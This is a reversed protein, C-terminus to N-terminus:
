PALRRYEVKGSGIKTTVKVGVMGCGILHAGQQECPTETAVLRAREGKPTEGHVLGAAVGREVLADRVHEAHAVNVCFVIWACREGARAILDDCTRAILDADDMAAALEAEVYEGGRIHVGALNPRELGGPTVLRSLYGDRILDVVRAEYAIETLVNDPGCVPVARGQLRYPTATLGVVRLHPNLARADAIFKRYLGDGKAGLPIRHAEDILLLDFTGLSAARKAVSQIQMFVIPDFRDRRNLGAAYIGMPAQTWYARLKAANQEVLEQVHALIGVRGHWEAVAHHAIAAMLPSKGAGTPLVLAPNGDRNRLYDWLCDLATVQYPRLQM